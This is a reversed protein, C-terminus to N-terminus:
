DEYEVKELEGEKLLAEIDNKRYSGNMFNKYLSAIRNIKGEKIEYTGLEERCKQEIYNPLDLRISM